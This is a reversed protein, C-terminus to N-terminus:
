CFFNIKSVMLQVVHTISFIIYLRYIVRNKKKLWIIDDITVKWRPNDSFKIEVEYWSRFNFNIWTFIGDGRQVTYKYEVCFWSLYIKWFKCDILAFQFITPKFTKPFSVISPLKFTFLLTGGQLLETAKLCNFGM